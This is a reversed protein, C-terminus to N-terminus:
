SSAAGFERDFPRRRCGLFRLEGRLTQVCEIRLNCDIRNRNAEIRRVRALEHTQVVDDDVTGIAERRTVQDVVCAHQLLLRVHVTRDEPEVSLDRHESYGACRTIATKIGLRRRGIGHRGAGFAANQAYKRPDDSRPLGVFRELQQEFIPEGSSRAPECDDIRKGPAHSFKTDLAIWRTRQAAIRRRDM